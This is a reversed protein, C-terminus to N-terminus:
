NVFGELKEKRKEFDPMLVRLLNHFKKSHDWYKLHCLEHMIVYDICHVPTKILSLNLILKNKETLSGWRRTMKKIVLDPTDVKWHNIKLLCLKFREELKNKAKDKLWSDYVQKKFAQSSPNVVNLYLKGNKLQVSNETAQTVKLKYGRGLYYHTEGSIYQREPLKSKLKLDFYDLRKVIWRARKNVIQHIKNEPANIPAKIIVQAEPSVLISLTKRDSRLIKYHFKKSGYIIAAQKIKTKL